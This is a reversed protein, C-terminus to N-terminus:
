PATTAIRLVTSLTSRGGVPTVLVAAQPTALKDSSLTERRAAFTPARNKPTETSSGDGEKLTILMKGSEKLGGTVYQLINKLREHPIHM